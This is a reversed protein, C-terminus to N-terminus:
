VCDNIATVPQQGTPWGNQLNQNVQVVSKLPLPLQKVTKTDDRKRRYEVWQCAGCQFNDRLEEATPLEEPCLEFPSPCLPASLLLGHFGM